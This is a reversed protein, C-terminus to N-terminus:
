KSDSLVKRIAALNLEENQLERIRRCRRLSDAAPFTRTRGRRKCPLLGARTWHNVTDYPEGCRKALEQATIMDSNSKKAMKISSETEDLGSLGQLGAPGKPAIVGLM